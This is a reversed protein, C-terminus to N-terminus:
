LQVKYLQCLNKIQATPHLFKANKFKSKLHVLFAIGASDILKVESLDFIVDNVDRFQQNIQKLIQTVQDVAVKDPLKYQKM